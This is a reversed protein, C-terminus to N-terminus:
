QSVRHFQRSVRYCEQGTLLPFLKSPPIDATGPIHLLEQSSLILNHLPILQLHPHCNSSHCRLCRVKVKSLSCPRRSGEQVSKGSHLRDAPASPLTLAWRQLRPRKGVNQNAEGFPEHSQNAVTSETLVALLSVSVFKVYSWRPPTRSLM